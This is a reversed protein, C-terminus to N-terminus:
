VRPTWTTILAWWLGLFFETAGFRFSALDSRPNYLRKGEKVPLSFLLERRRIKSHCRSHGGNITVPWIHWEDTPEAWNGFRQSPGPAWSFFSDVRNQELIKTIWDKKRKVTWHKWYEVKGAFGVPKPRQLTKCFMKLISFWMKTSFNPRGSQLKAFATLLILIVQIKRCKACLKAEM